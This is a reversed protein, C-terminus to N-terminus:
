KERGPKLLRAFFAVTDRGGGKVRVECELGLKNMEDRLAYGFKENHIGAGARTDSPEDRGGYVMLVPPDDRTLHAIPSCEEFIKHAKETDLEEPELGWFPMLAPHEHARGGIHKRIFRPDYSSQGNTALVCSLRTSEREVPDEADPRALDDHFALWLSIGAGASGGTAGFRKPDLNYEAAKSRLFQVARAGDHMPAPFPAVNTLRYNISAVSIGEALCGRILGASVQEKSGARFGGGHIFIVLPTPVDAKAKWLDLVHRPHPGYAVNKHDPEPKDAGQLLAAALLMPWLTM